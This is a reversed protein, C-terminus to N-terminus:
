KKLVLFNKEPVIGTGKPMRWVGGDRHILRQPLAWLEATVLGEQGGGGVM